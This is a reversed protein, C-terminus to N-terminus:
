ALPAPPPECCAPGDVDGADVGSKRPSGGGGRGRLTPAFAVAM